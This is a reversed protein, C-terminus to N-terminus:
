SAKQEHLLKIRIGFMRIADRLARYELASLHTPLSERDRKQRFTRADEVIARNKLRTLIRLARGPSLQTKQDAFYAFIPHVVRNFKKEKRTVIKRKRKM